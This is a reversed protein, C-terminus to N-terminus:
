KVKFYDSLGSLTDTSDGSAQLMSQATDFLTKAQKVQPEDGTLNEVGGASKAAVLGLSVAALAYDDATAGSSSSLGTLLQATTDAVSTDISNAAANISKIAADSDSSSLFQTGVQTVTSQINTAGIGLKVAVLKQADTLSAGGDSGVLATFAQQKVAPDQSQLAASAFQVKQETSLTSPDHRFSTLINTTFLQQCGSLLLGGVALASLLVGRTIIRRKAMDEM